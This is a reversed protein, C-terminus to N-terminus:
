ADAAGDPRFAKLVGKELVDVQLQADKLADQCFPCCLLTLLGEWSFTRVSAGARSTGPSSM